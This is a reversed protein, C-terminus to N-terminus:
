GKKEQNSYQNCSVPFQILINIFNIFLNFHGENLLKLMKIKFLFINSPYKGINEIQIVEVYIGTSPIM